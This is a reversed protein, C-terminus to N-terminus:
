LEDLISNIQQERWEALTIFYDSFKGWDHIKGDCYFSVGEVNVQLLNHYEYYRMDCIQGVEFYTIDRFIYNKICIAKSM